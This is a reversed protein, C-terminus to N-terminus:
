VVKRPGSKLCGIRDESSVGAQCFMFTMCQEIISLRAVLACKSHLSFAIFFHGQEYIWKDSDFKSVPLLM